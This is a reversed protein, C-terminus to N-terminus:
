LCKNVNRERLIAKEWAKCWACYWGQRFPKEKDDYGIVEMMKQGCQCKKSTLDDM